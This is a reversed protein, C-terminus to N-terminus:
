KVALYDREGILDVTDLTGKRWTEISFCFQDEGEKRAAFGLTHGTNANHDFVTERAYTLIVGNFGLDKLSQVTAKTEAGTEGACFQKYFTKKLLYHLLPNRNVDLLPNARPKSLFSLVSLSPSLLFSHSSITAILLSRLLTSAPVISLPPLLNSKNNAADGASTSLTPNPRIQSWGSSLRVQTVFASCQSVSVAVNGSVRSNKFLFHVMM